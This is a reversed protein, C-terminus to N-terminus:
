SGPRCSFTNRRKSISPVVAIDLFSQRSLAKLERSLDGSEKLLILCFNNFIRQFYGGVWNSTLVHM